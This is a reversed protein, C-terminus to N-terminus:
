LNKLRENITETQSRIAALQAEIMSLKDLIDYHTERDAQPKDYPEFSLDKLKSRQMVPQSYDPEQQDFSSRAPLPELPEPEAPEDFPSKKGTIQSRFDYFDEQKRHFVKDKISDLIGM